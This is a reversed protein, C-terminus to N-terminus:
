RTAIRDRVFVKSTCTHVIQKSKELLSKEFQGAVTELGLVGSASDMEM